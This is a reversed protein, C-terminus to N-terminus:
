EEPTRAILEAYASAFTGFVASGPYKKALETFIKQQEQVSRGRLKEIFYRFATEPVM